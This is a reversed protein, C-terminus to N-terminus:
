SPQFLVREPLRVVSRSQLPLHEGHLDLRTCLLHFGCLFRKHLRFRRLERYGAHRLGFRRLLDDNGQFGFLFRKRLQHRQLGREGRRLDRECLVHDSEELQPLIRRQLRYRHLKRYRCLVVRDIRIDPRGGASEM